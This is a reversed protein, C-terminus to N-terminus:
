AQRNKFWGLEDQIKFIWMYPLATAPKSTSLVVTYSRLAALISQTFVNVDLLSQMEDDYQFDDRGTLERLDNMVHRLLAQNRSKCAKDGAHRVILFMCKISVRVGTTKTAAHLMEICAALEQLSFIECAFLIGVLFALHEASTGYRLPQGLTSRPQQIDAESAAGTAKTTSKTTTFAEPYARLEVLWWLDSHQRHCLRTLARTSFM